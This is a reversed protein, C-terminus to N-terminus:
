LKRNKRFELLNDIGLKEYVYQNWKKIKDINTWLVVDNFYNHVMEDINNLTSFYIEEIQKLTYTNADLKDQMKRREIEVIDFYIKTFIRTLTDNPVRLYSNYLNFVSYSTCYNAENITNIDLFIQSRLKYLGRPAFHMCFAVSDESLKIEEVEINENPHWFFHKPRGVLLYDENQTLNRMFHNGYAVSDANFILDDRNMSQLMATQKESLLLKSNAWFLNNYPIIALKQYDDMNKSYDFYPLIFPNDYDYCYVLGTTNVLTSYTTYKVDLSDESTEQLFYEFDLSYKFDVHSLM